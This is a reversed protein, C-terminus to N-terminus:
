IMVSRTLQLIVLSLYFNKRQWTIRYLLVSWINCKKIKDVDDLLIIQGNEKYEFALTFICSSCTMNQDYTVSTMFFNKPLCYLYAFILNYLFTQMRARFLFLRFNKETSSNLQMGKDFFDCITQINLYTEFLFYIINASHISWQGGRHVRLM